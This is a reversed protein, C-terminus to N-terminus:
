RSGILASLIIFIIAVHTFVFWKKSQTEKYKMFVDLFLIQSWLVFGLKYIFLRSSNSVNYWDMFVSIAFLGLFVLTMKKRRETEQLLEDSCKLVDVAEVGSEKNQIHAKMKGYLDNLFLIFVFVIVVDEFEKFGLLFQTLMLVLFSVALCAKTKTFYSSRNLAKKFSFFIPLGM